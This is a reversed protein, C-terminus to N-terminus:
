EPPAVAISQIELRLRPDAALRTVEVSASTPVHGGFWEKQYRNVINQDTDVHTFFRTLYVVDHRECGAARLRKDLHDFVIAVQSEIDQPIADFVEAVHPHDHYTPSPSVGSIFVLRGGTARIAPVFPSNVSPDYEETHVVELHDSAGPEIPPM